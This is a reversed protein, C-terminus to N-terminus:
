CCGGSTGSGEPSPNPTLTGLLWPAQTVGVEGFGAGEGGPAGISAFRGHLPLASNM